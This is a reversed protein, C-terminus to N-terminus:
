FLSPLNKFFVIANSQEVLMKIIRSKAFFSNNLGKSSYRTFGILVTNNTEPFKYTIYKVM